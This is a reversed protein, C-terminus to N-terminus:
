RRGEYAETVEDIIERARALTIGKLARRFEPEGDVARSRGRSRGGGKGAAKDKSRVSSVSQYALNSSSTATMKAM